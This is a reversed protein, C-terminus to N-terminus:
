RHKGAKGLHQAFWERTLRAIDTPMGGGATFGADEPLLVLKKDAPCITFAERNCGILSKDGRGIMFLTPAKLRPVASAALEARSSHVVTAGVSGPREAAAILVAAAASKSGFYGIDLGGTEENQKIWDTANLLRRALLRTDFWLKGMRYLSKEEETLLDLVLTAMGARNLYDALSRAAEIRPSEGSQALIAIGYVGRPTNLSAGLIKGGAAIHIPYGTRELGSAPNTLM